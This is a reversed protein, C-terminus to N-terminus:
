CAVICRKGHALLNFIFAGRQSLHYLQSTAAGRIEQVIPCHHESRAKDEQIGGIFDFSFSLMLHVRQNAM